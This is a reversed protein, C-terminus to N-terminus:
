LGVLRAELFEDGGPEIPGFAAGAVEVGWVGRVALDVEPHAVGVLEDVEDVLVPVAYGVVVAGGFGVDVAFVHSLQPLIGPRSWM